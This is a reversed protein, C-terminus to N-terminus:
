INGLQGLRVPHGNRYAVILTRYDDAKFLQGNAQVPYATFPGTLAGSPLNVNGKAIASAVEDIGVGRSALQRPDLQARVAYKQSGYVQVQAVGEVASIRLAMMTEAYEDLQYLPMNESYVALYM